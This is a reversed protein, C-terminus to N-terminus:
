QPWGTPRLILASAYVPGQLSITRTTAANAQVMLKIDFSGTTAVIQTTLSFSATQQWSGASPVLNQYAVNSQSFSFVPSAGAAYNATFLGIAYQTTSSDASATLFSLTGAIQVYIVDGAVVQPVNSSGLATSFTPSIGPWDTWTTASLGGVITSLASFIGTTQITAVPKVIKHAGTQLALWATRDALASFGPIFTSADFPDGNAPNLSVNGTFTLPIAQGTAGGVGNGNSGTLQFHTSDVVVVPWIGNANTNTQHLQLRVYDGSKMGHASSTQVVIPSANTSSSINLSTPPLINVPLGNYATGAM